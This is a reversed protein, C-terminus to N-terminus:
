ESGLSVPSLGLQRLRANLAALESTRLADWRSMLAAFDREAAAAAALAQTTPPADAGELLNM